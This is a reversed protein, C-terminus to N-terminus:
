YINGGRSVWHDLSNLNQGSSGSVGEEDGVVCEMVKSGTGRGGWSCITEGDNGSVGGGGGKNCSLVGGVGRNYCPSTCSLSHFSFTGMCSFFFSLLRSWLQCPVYIRERRKFTPVSRHHDASFLRKRKDSGPPSYIFVCDAQGPKSRCHRRLSRWYIVARTVAARLM